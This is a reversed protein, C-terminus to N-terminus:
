GLHFVRRKKPWDKPDEDRISYTGARGRLMLRGHVAAGADIDRGEIRVRWWGREVYFNIQRGRYVTVRDSVEKVTEAGDVSIKTEAGRRLDVIRVTGRRIHGFMAGRATFVALGYGNKLEVRDTDAALYRDLSPAASATAVATLCVFLALGCIATSLRRVSV